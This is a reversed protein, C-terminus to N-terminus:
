RMVLARAALYAAIALSHAADPHPTRIGLKYPTYGAGRLKASITLRILKEDDVVLVKTMSTLTSSM